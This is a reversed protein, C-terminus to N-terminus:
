GVDKMEVRYLCFFVTGAALAALLIYFPANNFFTYSGINGQTLLMVLLGAIITAKSSKTKIGVLLVTYSISVMAASNLLIDLYFFPETFVNGPLIDSLYIRTWPSILFLGAYLFLKCLVLAAFNFIWVALMKSLLIKRRKIPYSFMLAMTGDRYGTIIYVSLMVSTMLMFAMNSFMEVAANIMSKGYLEVTEKGALEGSTTLIMGFLILVIIATKVLYKRINCKKWELRVLKWM